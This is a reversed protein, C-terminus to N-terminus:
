REGKLRALFEEKMVHRNRLYRLGLIFGTVSAAIVYLLPAEMIILSNLLVFLIYCLGDMLISAPHPEIFFNKFREGWTQKWEILSFFFTNDVEGLSGTRIYGRCMRVFRFLAVPIFAFIAVDFLFSLLTEYGLM